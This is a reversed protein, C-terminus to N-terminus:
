GKERSRGGGGRRRAVGSFSTPPMPPEPLRLCEQIKPEQIETKRISKKSLKNTRQRKENRPWPMPVRASTFCPDPRPRIGVFFMDKSARYKSRGSVRQAQVDSTKGGAQESAQESAEELKGVARKNARGDPSSARASDVITRHMEITRHM